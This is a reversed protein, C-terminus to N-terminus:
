PSIGFTPRFVTSEPRYPKKDRYLQLRTESEKLQVGPGVLMGAPISRTATKLVTIAKEETAVADDFRGAEAYAAALITLYRPNIHNTKECIKTALEVALKGDRVKADPCVALLWATRNQTLELDPNLKLSEVYAAKAEAYKSVNELNYAVHQWAIAPSWASIDNASFGSPPGGNARIVTANLKATDFPAGFYERVVERQKDTMAKAITAMTEGRLRLFYGPTGFGLTADSPATSRMEAIAKEIAASQDATFALKTLIETNELGEPGQLQIRVQSIRKNQGDDLIKRSQESVESACKLVIMIPSTTPQTRSRLNMLVQRVEGSLTGLTEPSLKLEKLWDGQSFVAFPSSLQIWIRLRPAISSFPNAFGAPSNRPTVMVPINESVEGILGIWLKSQEATFSKTFAATWKDAIVRRAKNTKEQIEATRTAGPALRNDTALKALEANMDDTMKGVQEKQADSLKLMATVDADLFAAVALSQLELQRGRARQEATLYKALVEEIKASTEKMREPAEKAAKEAAAKADAEAKDFKDKHNAIVKESAQKLDAIQQETLKLESAVAPDLILAVGSYLDLLSRHDTPRRTTPGSGTPPSQGAASAALVLTVLLSRM